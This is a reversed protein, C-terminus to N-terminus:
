NTVKQTFHTKEILYFFNLFKLGLEDKCIEIMSRECNKREFIEFSKNFNKKDIKFRNRLSLM